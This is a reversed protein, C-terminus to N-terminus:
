GHSTNEDDIQQQLAELTLRAERFRFTRVQNDMERLLVLHTPLQNLLESIQKRAGLSNRQLSESLANLLADLAVRDFDVPQTPVPPPLTHANATLWAAVTTLAEGLRQNLVDLSRTVAEPPPGDATWGDRIADVLHAACRQVAVAGASGAEGKLGHALRHLGDRDQQELLVRAKALTDQNGESFLQLLRYLREPQGQLRALAAVTDFGALPPVTVTPPTAPLVRATDGVWRCLTAVFSDPAFPKLIFDDMGAARAAEHDQPLDAATMALIPLHRGAPLQRIQRCAELGDMEPMQLDMLVLDFTQQRVRQLAELGTAALTVILGVEELFSRAVEQNLPNDEALLVRLGHLQAGSPVAVVPKAAEGDVPSGFAATFSFTSGQGFTSSVAIEGGMLEALRRCIVLGLGTGGYRRTISADAQSFAQFLQAQQAPAIGIGTDHVSFRLTCHQVDRQAVEIGLRIDGEHTFKIANSMLNTLVQGLRLADGVLHRPVGDAIDTHFTLGKEAAQFAFLDTIHGVVTDLDFHRHEVDMRGAEIKSYDLIDNLINLLIQSSKQIKNLYDKLEDGSALNSALRTFGIVANMPTRIEHSMNALFESKARTAQEAVEKAQQLARENEKIATIDFMMVYLGRCVGDRMDPVYNIQAYRPPQGNVPPQQREYSLAKGQCAEVMRPWHATYVDDGLLKRVRINVLTDPTTDYWDAYTKNSFVNYIDHVDRSDWYSVAAPISNLIESLTKRQAEVEQALHRREDIDLFTWIVGKAPDTKDLATGSVACWFVRGDRHRFPYEVGVLSENLLRAYNDRFAEFSARDTHILESSQGSFEEPSYGFMECMRHSVQEIKREWSVLFIGVASNDLLAQRLTAEKEQAQQVRVMATIDVYAVLVGYKPNELPLASTVLWREGSATVVRMEVDKVMKKQTLAQVSAYEEPPMLSGDARLVVWEKGQYNRTLHEEKSIGLIDESARNCDVINGQPDTVSIGVPLVEYLHTLLDERERLSAELQKRATLDRFSALLYRDDDLDMGQAIIEVTLLRGDFRRVSREVTLPADRDFVGQFFPVQTMPVGLKAFEVDWDRVNLVRRSDQEWGMMQYFAANAEILNGSRDLIHVGDGMTKLLARYRQRSSAIRNKERELRLILLAIALSAVLTVTLGILLRQRSSDIQRYIPALEAKEDLGASVILPWHALAHWAWVRLVHDNPSVVHFTGSAGPRGQYQPRESPLQRGIFKEWEQNRALYEGEPRIVHIRDGERLTLQNLSTSLYEVRLPVGVVGLFKGQRYISRTILVIWEGTLRGKFPKNILLRDQQDTAHAKFYDRDGLYLKPTNGQSAYRLMGQADVVIISNLANNPFSKVVMNATQDFSRKDDLYVDRLQLLVLDIARLLTDMKDSAATDLQIARREATERAQALLTEQDRLQQQWLILCGVITVVVLIISPGYTRWSFSQKLKKVVDPGVAAM